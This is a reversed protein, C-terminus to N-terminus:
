SSSSSPSSHLFSTILSAAEEKNKIWRIRKDRKFWTMQRRAYQRNHLYILQITEQLTQKGDFYDKWERVSISSLSPLHPDYKSFLARAEQELGEQLQEEIRRAIREELEKMPRTIGLECVRFLPPDKTRQSSFPKGTAEIVELARIIRRRNKPNIFQAANPDKTILQQYLQETPVQLPACQAGAPSRHDGRSTSTDFQNRLKENPPVDPFTFNDVVSSIWLGTGGVLFPQKGREHIENITKVALSKFHTVNFEEDPKVVDFLHHPINQYQLPACQAGVPSRHDGRSLTPKASAIDIEKYIQRSDANIIEGNFEHALEAALDTKGSATPGLFVILPSLPM